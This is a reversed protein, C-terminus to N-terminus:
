DDPASFRLPRLIPPLLMLLAWSHAATVWSVPLEGRSRGDESRWCPLNLQPFGFPLHQHKPLIVKWLGNNLLLSRKKYFLITKLCSRLSHTNLCSSAHNITKIGRGSKSNNTVGCGNDFDVLYIDALNWFKKLYFKVTGGLWGWVESSWWNKQRPKRLVPVM